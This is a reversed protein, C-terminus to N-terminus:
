IFQHLDSLLEWKLNQGHLWNGSIENILQLMVMLDSCCAFKGSEFAKNGLDEQFAIKMDDSIEEESKNKPIIFYLNVSEESSMSAEECIILAM